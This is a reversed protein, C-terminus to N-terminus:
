LIHVFHGISPIDDKAVIFLMYYGPPLINRNLPTKASLINSNKIHFELGVYRQETNVCHTTVSPRILAIANIHNANDNTQIEFEQGYTISNPSKSIEPRSGRFLYPPRYLEIRLENIRREPNSGATMVRGDPLLLANAHYLRDLKMSAMPHWNNDKPNFLEPELVAHHDHPVEELAEHRVMELKKQKHINKNSNMQTHTQTHTHGKTGIKGGLVLVSQDPLLVAYAYYRPHKLPKISKYKPHKESFDIMEVDNIADTGPQTGGAILLVKASYDPPLLPLLVTTGEERKVNHPNGIKTWRRNQVNFISSPFGYLSFPFTYHTNYSGAYFIEGSPLLHLRPYMPIWHGAGPITQWGERDKSSYIELEKLFAWPFNKSLGAMVLIRGDALMICSPYWRGNKMDAVQSWKLTIPDFIHTHQLGSFPPIPLRLFKGDYKYTGGAVILRGDSLFAHGSCFIDGSVDTPIEYVRGAQHNTSASGKGNINSNINGNNSYSNSNKERNSTTHHNHNHVHNDHYDVDSRELDDPEFIEAPYPSNLRTEDNGSGGFALVKGTHLLAIHVPLYRFHYKIPEWLGKKAPDIVDTNNNNDGDHNDHDM